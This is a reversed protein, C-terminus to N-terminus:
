LRASQPTEGLLINPVLPQLLPDTLFRESHMWMFSGPVYADVQLGLVPSLSILPGRTRAPWRFGQAGHETLSETEFSLTSHSKCPCRMHGGAQRQRQTYANFTLAVM